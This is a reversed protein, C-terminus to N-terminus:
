PSERPDAALHALLLAEGLCARELEGLHVSENEGHARTDPDSAGTLLIAADPYVKAFEAVLPISGGMGMEVVDNGFAEGLARRAADFIPGDARLAFPQGATGPEVRVEAGWPAAAEIHAALADM